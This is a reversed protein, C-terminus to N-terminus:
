SKQFELEAAKFIRQVDAMKHCATAEKGIWYGNGQREKGECGLGMTGRRGSRMRRSGLVFRIPNWIIGGNWESQITPCKLLISSGIISKHISWANSRCRFEMKREQEEERHRALNHSEKGSKKM